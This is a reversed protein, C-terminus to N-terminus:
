REAVGKQRQIATAIATLARELEYTNIDDAKDQRWDASRKFMGGIYDNVFGVLDAPLLTGTRFDKNQQGYLCDLIAYLVPSFTRQFAKLDVKDRSLVRGIADRFVRSYVPFFSKAEPQPEEGEQQEEKPTETEPKADQKDQADVTDLQQPVGADDDIDAPQVNVPVYYTNGSDDEIPNMGELERIDNPSLWGTNFGTSYFSQRDNATPRLLNHLDFDVYFNNRQPKRGVGAFDPNPFLRRKFEQKIATLWPDLCYNIFEQGLQEANSKGKDIDGIMTPPVHFISCVEARVLKKAEVAQADQPSNSMPTFKTDPPLVAVRHANEGGQAEIWSRKAQEMQEPDIKTPLTLIGGPKAFNAFYKAGFKDMALAMGITQRSLEVVSQGIRGDFSLGQIHIMDEAAIIRGGGNQAGDTTKYVLDGANVNVPFPRGPFPPLIAAERIIYPRTTAPNRPWIAVVRNGADRQIEGYGNGWALFHCALAKKFTFASMDPNPELSLLDQVNHDYLITRVQRGNQVDREYVYLPLAAIKSAILDVCALFITTQFATLESVRIGSDTRGGNFADLLWEAPYSLPTQPNELSSRLESVWTSIRNLFGM